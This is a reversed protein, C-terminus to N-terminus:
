RAANGRGAAPRVAASEGLADALATVIWRPHSYRVALHGVLDATRDPAAVEIWSELDRLAVRRLVANVFGAPRRGAVDVALDVTTAVAAHPKIRMGLLQHTGLRLVDLVPQDIQGLPRDACIAIVADYCSRSRLTGYVLETALAADQGHLGRERLSAALLLNAYADRTTVASLVDWATRRVPDAGPRRTGPQTTGPQGSGQRPRRGGRQGASV